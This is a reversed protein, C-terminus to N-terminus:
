QFTIEEIRWCEEGLLNKLRNLLEPSIRTTDNPFDILHGKGGEFIQFQFRDKGPQSMLIFYINKIRRRDREPDGSPRLTVTMMRPTQSDDRKEALIQPPVIPPLVNRARTPPETVASSTEMAPALREIELMDDMPTPPPPPAAYWGPPEAALPPAYVPEDLNWDDPFDPEPPMDDFDEAVPAPVYDAPPEAMKSPPRSVVSSPMPAPSAAKPTQHNPQSTPAVPKRDITQPRHDVTLNEEASVYMTFDTRIEDVLIKPPTTAADVKGVALIVKGEECLPRFKDWARPFIVLEINGTLDELTVFGMMKDTKTKYPRSSVVLGAVRVPQQNGLENLDLSNTIFGQTLYSEYEKLPHDSLYLGVLEREWALAEKKDTKQSGLIISQAQVGTAAGFLSMQGSEAAKFHSASAAVLQDLSALLAAREGFGNFAGVKILCELARKGVAKLDARNALDNLDRFPVDHGSERRGALIVEVPGVGVNKVASMGFRIATKVQGSGTSPPLEEITFDMGSHNISPPLVEIGMSRAEAIYLSIKASDDKFVSMLASMYEAPYHAKLYATQVSVLGYDAAHSNHVIIDNAVFNHNGPVELDYTQKEGIYEISVIEDWYVDNDSLRRMAPDGFYDALRSMTQRTFGRKTATHTPYFERQAIGSEANLALWTIGTREKVSRVLEKAAVPVIDKTGIVRAPREALIASMAARNKESILYAGVTEAFALLNEYGTIFLQWGTRGEKYPFTVKRLRSIIGLRLCLHQMQRAMRESATAYFACHSQPDFHGDGEWMRSLLLALQRNTLEFVPAPIEKEPATKGLMGLDGAWTFIEPPISRNIRGAYVSWTSKHMNASCLVNEFQEAAAVFDQVQGDDQSYFYVSHPHCLNGEALLHGLAIVQHEPWEKTGEVPLARPVAILEGTQLTDLIKWGSYTYFPHNATAEIQRGLATTLRYVPKVGNDMARTVQSPHLRLTETDTSLIRPLSASRRYIDEIRVMRGTDADLVEVDGPLCKNFGYRAFQEWDEFIATATAKDMIGREVAGKIFKEKNKAIKDAMKKSIAKRLDDSESRTFGGIEVSARMIQEQYVPIGYTDRFIPELAPHRYEIPEEGHMRRIYSPIFDMPGPRYLAVMAIINDLNKPKMEVVYRTMGTGELQFVGATKGEGLLEFTKPDDLPINNLDYEKGHRQKIMECARAMVTLTSLGLFDVKLMGMSDLIGMEFQTVTKVPSEESGSTPRHIPLYETIPKDSIVLGAAHTGANRVTGEMHIATDVLSKVKPDSDYLSKFDPVEELAQTLSVPKGPIQPVLKAVKDVEPIPIEMVRAVDRLAGRAAMTGFTIIQAVKDDGYKQAAYVLMESRRDDRFDLDIDPMSVRGPNLFREFLLHHEIPDVLTIFLSYAVLSGAGSGRTNYWIGSESAYRCLDWVILFYSDFGMSHIVELEFNLRERIVPDNKRAGYRKELGIECLHHLYSQTTYGQPVPFEPIHYGKFGLDVNCREAIMLTNSLAEPIEAFLRSMEQPSRLYFTQSDYRMRDPDNLSKGTQIALLVDQYAADELNIYHVDNTAVFKASYKAGLEVLKRNLDVIESINHQQLEVFFRDPGFVDYYWNMRRVAEEPREEILDRPIEASMCGSTCILGESHEALFEHDIRPYYYFGDMQAASTIKLLNKYGTENEALLLLHSSKKDLKADRDSMRRAAMYTEVGIIPKIGAERAANYFEVVGFMTGHDTIALAPMELEKARKVLKKINSFGDLLSYVTHTHLHVFSM